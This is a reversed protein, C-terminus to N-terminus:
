LPSKSDQGSFMDSALFSASPVQAAFSLISHRRPSTEQRAVYKLHVQALSVGERGEGHQLTM